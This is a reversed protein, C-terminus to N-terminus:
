KGQQSLLSVRKRPSIPLGKAVQQDQQWNLSLAPQNAMMMM